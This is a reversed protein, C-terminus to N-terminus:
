KKFKKDAIILYIILVILYIAGLVGIATYLYKVIFDFGLYAIIQGVLLVVSMVFYKHRKTKTMVQVCHYASIELTTFLAFIVGILYVVFFVNGVNKSLNLMPMDANLDGIAFCSLLIVGAVVIGSVFALIKPKSKTCLLVSILTIFNECCFIIPFYIDTIISGNADINVSINAWANVVIMVILIPMVVNAIQKIRNVGGLVIFFTILSLFLSAIPLNLGLYTRALNDCGALMASNTVLFLIILVINGIEYYKGFAFKNLKTLNDINHKQKIHLIYGSLGVFVFLFVCVAILVNKGSLFFHSIEKGTAFGVGIIASIVFFVDFLLLKFKAFNGCIGDM